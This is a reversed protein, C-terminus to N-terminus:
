VSTTKASSPPLCVKVYLSISSTITLPKLIITFCMCYLVTFMYNTIYLASYHLPCCLTIPVRVFTGSHESQEECEGSTEIYIM